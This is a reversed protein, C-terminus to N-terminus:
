ITANHLTQTHSNFFSPGCDFVMTEMVAHPLEPDFLSGTKKKKGDQALWKSFSTAAKELNRTGDVGGHHLEM